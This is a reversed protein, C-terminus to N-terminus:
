NQKCIKKSHVKTQKENENQKKNKKTKNKSENQQKKTADINQFIRIASKTYSKFNSNRTHKEQQQKEKTEREVAAGERNM